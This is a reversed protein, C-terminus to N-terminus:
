LEFGGCDAGGFGTGACCCGEGGGAAQKGADSKLVSVPRVDSLASEPAVVAGHSPPNKRQEEGGAGGICTACSQIRSAGRAHLEHPHDHVAGLGSSALRQLRLADSPSYRRRRRCGAVRNTPRQHIQVRRSIQQPDSRPPLSGIPLQLRQQRTSHSCRSTQERRQCLYRIPSAAYRELLAPCTGDASGPRYLTLLGYKTHYNARRSRRGM